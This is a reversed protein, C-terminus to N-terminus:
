QTSLHKVPYENTLRSRAGYCYLFNAIPFRDFEKCSIVRWWPKYSAGNTNYIDLDMETVTCLLLYACIRCVESPCDHCQGMAMWSPSPYFILCLWVFQISIRKIDENEDRAKTLPIGRAFPWYRPFHKWKIVDDHIWCLRDQQFICPQHQYTVSAAVGHSHSLNAKSHM